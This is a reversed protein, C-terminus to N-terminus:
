KMLVWINDRGENYLILQKYKRYIVKKGKKKKCGLLFLFVLDMGSNQTKM